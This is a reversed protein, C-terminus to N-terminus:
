KIVFIIEMKSHFLTFLNIRTNTQMEVKM